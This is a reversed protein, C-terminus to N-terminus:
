QAKRGKIALGIRRVELVALFTLACWTTIGLVTVERYHPGIVVVHVLLAIGALYVLRHLLKWNKFRLTKVAWDFSTLAMVALIGLAIIGGTLSLAYQANLYALGDFGNLQMFFTMYAHLFAYYFSLVGIARRAHLYAKNFAAFRFTKTFPSALVALYLLLFSVFGYAQEIRIVQLSGAPVFLQIFGAIFFSLAIGSLLIWFRSNDLLANLAHFFRQSM